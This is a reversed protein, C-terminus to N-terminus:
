SNNFLRTFTEEVTVNLEKGLLVDRSKWCMGKSYFLRDELIGRWLIGDNKSVSLLYNERELLEVCFADNM